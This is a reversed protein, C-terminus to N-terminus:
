YKKGKTLKNVKYPNNRPCRDSTAYGQSEDKMDKKVRM